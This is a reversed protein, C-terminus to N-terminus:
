GEAAGGGELGSSDRKQADFRTFTYFVWPMDEEGWRRWSRRQSPADPPPPPEFEDFYSTDLADRLQPRFPAEQERLTEFPVGDFFPHAM